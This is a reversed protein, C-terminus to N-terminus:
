NLSDKETKAHIDYEEQWELHERKKRYHEKVGVQVRTAGTFATVLFMALCDLAIPTLSFSIFLYHYKTDVFCLVFLAAAVVAYLLMLTNAVISKSKIRAKLYLTVLWAVIMFYYEEM